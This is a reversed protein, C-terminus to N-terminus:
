SAVGRARQVDWEQRGLPGAECPVAVPALQGRVTFETKGLLHATKITVQSDTVTGLRQLIQPVSLM